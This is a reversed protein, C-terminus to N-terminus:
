PWVDQYMSWLITDLDNIRNYYKLLRVFYHLKMLDTNKMKILYSYSFWAIGRIIGEGLNCLINIKNIRRIFFKRGERKSYLLILLLIPRKRNWLIHHNYSYFCNRSQLRQASSPNKINDAFRWPDNESLPPRISWRGSFM